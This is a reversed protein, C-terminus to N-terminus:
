ILFFFSHFDNKVPLFPKPILFPSPQHCLFLSNFRMEIGGPTTSGVPSSGTDLCIRWLSEVHKNIYQNEPTPLFM